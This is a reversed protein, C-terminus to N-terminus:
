IRMFRRGAVTPMNGKLHESVSQPTVGLSRALAAATPWTADPDGDIERVAGTARQRTTVITQGNLNAWPREQGICVSQWNLADTEAFHASILDLKVTQEPQVIRVFESNRRADAMTFLSAAPSVGIWLPETMGEISVRYVIFSSRLAGFPFTLM